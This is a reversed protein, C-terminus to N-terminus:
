NDLWDLMCQAVVLGDDEQLVAHKLGPMEYRRKPKCRLLRYMEESSKPASVRDESGHWIATPTNYAPLANRFTDIASMYERFFRQTIQRHVLPDAEYAKAYAEDQCLHHGRIYTTLSMTPLMTGMAKTMFRQWPKFSEPLHISPGTFAARQFANPKQICYLGGVLSGTAHAVLFRTGELRECWLHVDDILHQWSPTHGRRGESNGHGRMDLVHVNYGKHQWFEGLKKYLGAHEGLSHLVVIHKNSAANLWQTCSLLLGDTSTLTSYEM